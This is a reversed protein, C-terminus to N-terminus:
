PKSEEITGDSRVHTVIDQADEKIEKEEKSIDASDESEEKEAEALEKEKRKLRDLAKRIKKIDSKISMSVGGKDKKVDKREKRDHLYKKIRDILARIKEKGHMMMFISVILLIIAVAVAVQTSAGLSVLAFFVMVTGITKGLLISLKGYLFYVFAFVVVSILIGIVYDKDSVPPYFHAYALFAGYGFAGAIAFKVVVYLVVAALSAAILAILYVPIGHAQLFPAIFPAAFKETAFYGGAAGIGAITLKWVPKTFFLMAIGFFLLGIPVLWRYQEPIYSLTLYKALDNGITGFM